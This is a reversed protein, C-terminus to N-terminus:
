ATGGQERRTAEHVVVAVHAPAAARAVAAARDRDLEATGAPVVVRVQPAPGSGAPVPEGPVASWTVGGDDDVEVPGGVVLGVQEALGAATGRARQWRAASAVLDRCVAEPLDDDLDAGVWSALWPLHDPPCLRPDLYAWLNDLTSLVPALVEDLGATFRCTLDDDQYLSPLRQVLPFPTRLGPVTGRM